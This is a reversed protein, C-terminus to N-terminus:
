FCLQDSKFCALFVHKFCKRAKAPSYNVCPLLWVYNISIEKSTPQRVGKSQALDVLASGKFQEDAFISLMTPPLGRHM